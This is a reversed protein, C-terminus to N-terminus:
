EQEFAMQRIKDLASGHSQNISPDRSQYVLLDIPYFEYTLIGDYRVSVKMNFSQWQQCSGQLIKYKNGKNVLKSWNNRADRYNGRDYDLYKSFFFDSLPSDLWNSSLSSLFAETKIPTEKQGHKSYFLILNFQSFDFIVKSEGHIGIDEQTGNIEQDELSQSEPNFTFYIEICYEMKLKLSGSIWERPRIASIQCPIGGWLATAIGCGKTWSSAQLHDLIRTDIGALKLQEQRLYEEVSIVTNGWDILDEPSLNTLLKIM